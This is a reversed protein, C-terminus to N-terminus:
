QNPPPTPQGAPPEGKLETAPAPPAAVGRASNWEKEADKWEKEKEMVRGRLREADAKARQASESRDKQQSEFAEFAFGTDPRINKSRAVKAKALEFRAEKNIVEFEHYRVVMKLYDRRARAFAVHKDAARRGLEAARVEAAAANVQTMDHTSEADKKKLNASREEITAKEVEAEALRVDTNAKNFEDEATMKNSRALQFENQTTSVEPREAPPVRAIYVEDLKSTVPRPRPLEGGGCSLLLSALALAATALPTRLHSRSRVLSMM